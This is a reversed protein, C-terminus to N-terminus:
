KLEKIRINKFHVEAGESQWGLQGETLEGKGKSVEVGNVKSILEGDKSIVETTNWEPGVPKIAKKQGDKDVTFSGKAGGIAFIRGHDSHMGQVEVCKPWTGKPPLGQIHVLLGSNGANKPFRWDFQLVFNKYKKDTVMYGNPSGSVVVVGDQITFTKGPDAEKGGIVFKWGSFDKGNFLPTFDDAQAAAHGALFAVAALLALGQLCKQMTTFRM